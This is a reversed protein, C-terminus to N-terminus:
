TVAFPAVFETRDGDVAALVVFAHEGRDLDLPGVHVDDDSASTANADGVRVHWTRSEGGALTQWPEVFADPAVQTWGDGDRRYVTWAYPNLGVADADRNTLTATFSGGADVTADSRAFTAAADDGVCVTAADAAFSPCDAPLAPGGDGDGPMAASLPGLCGGAAALGAVSALYRRRRM